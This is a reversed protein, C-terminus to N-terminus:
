QAVGQAKVGTIRDVESSDIRVTGPSLKVVALRGDRVWRELTRMSVRLRVAAEYKTLLHAM